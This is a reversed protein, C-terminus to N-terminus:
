QKVPEPTQPTAHEQQQKELEKRASELLLKSSPDHELLALSRELWVIAEAYAGKQKLYIRGVNRCAIGREHDTLDLKLYYDWAKLADDASDEVGFHKAMVYQSALDRAFEKNDMTLERAKEYAKICEAFVRPLDWGFKEAVRKRHIAYNVALNVYFMAEGPELAIAKLFLDVAEMDRGMHNYLSGLNNYAYPFRGEMEIVGRWEEAAKFRAHTDSFFWALQHRVYWNNPYRKLVKRFRDVQEDVADNHLKWAAVAKVHLAEIEAKTPLQAGPPLEEPAFQLAELAAYYQETANVATERLPAIVGRAANGAEIVRQQRWGELWGSPAYALVAGTATPEPQVNRGMCGVAVLLCCAMVLGSLWRM